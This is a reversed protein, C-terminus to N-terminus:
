KNKNIFNDIIHKREMLKLRKESEKREKNRKKQKELKETKLSLTVFIMMIMTEKINSLSPTFKRVFELLDNTKSRIREQCVIFTLTINMIHESIDEKAEKPIIDITFYLNKM